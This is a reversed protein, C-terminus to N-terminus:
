RSSQPVLGRSSAHERLLARGPDVPWARTSHEDALDIETFEAVSAQGLQAPSPDGEDKLLEIQDPRQCGLLVNAQGQPEVPAVWRPARNASREGLDPELVPGPVPRGLERAPLLLPHRDGPREHGLGLHDEGILRGSREVARGSARHEVGSRRVTSSSPRVTTITV